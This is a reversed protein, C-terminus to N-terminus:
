VWVKRLVLPEYRKALMAIFLIYPFTIRLGFSIKIEGVHLLWHSLHLINNWMETHCIDSCDLHLGIIECFTFINPCVNTKQWVPNQNLVILVMTSIKVITFGIRLPPPIINVLICKLNLSYTSLQDASIVCVIKWLIMEFNM